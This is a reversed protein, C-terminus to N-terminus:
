LLRYYENSLSYYDLRRFNEKEYSSKNDTNAVVFTRPLPMTGCSFISSPLSSYRGSALINKADSVQLERSRLSFIGAHLFYVEDLNRNLGNEINEIKSRFDSLCEFIRM